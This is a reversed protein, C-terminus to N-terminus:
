GLGFLWDFWVLGVVSVCCVLLGFVLVGAETVCILLGVVVLWGCLFLCGVSLTLGFEDWVAILYVLTGAFDLLVM